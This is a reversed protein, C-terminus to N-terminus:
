NEPKHPIPWTWVTTSPEFVSCSKVPPEIREDVLIDCFISINVSWKYISLYPYKLSRKDTWCVVSSTLQLYKYSLQWFKHCFLLLYIYAIFHIWFLLVLYTFKACNAIFDHAMWINWIEKRNVKIDIHVLLFCCFSWEFPQAVITKWDIM